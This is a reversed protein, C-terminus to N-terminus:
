MQFHVVRMGGSSIFMVRQLHSERLTVCFRPSLGVEIEIDTGNTLNWKNFIIDKIDNFKLNICLM